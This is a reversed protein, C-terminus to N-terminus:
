EDGGGAPETGGVEYWAAGDEDYLYVKGTDVEIFVSGTAFGTPKDDLSNGYAEVYHIDDLQPERKLIRVAM